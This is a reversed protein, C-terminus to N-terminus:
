SSPFSDENSLLFYLSLFFSFFLFFNSFSSVLILLFALLLTAPNLLLNVEGFSGGSQRLKVGSLGPRSVWVLMGKVSGSLLMWVWGDM